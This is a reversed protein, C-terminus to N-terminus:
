NTIVQPDSGFERSSCNARVMTSVGNARRVQDSSRNMTTPNGIAKAPRAKTPTVITVPTTRTIVKMPKAMM